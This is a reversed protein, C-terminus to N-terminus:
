GPRPPSRCSPRRRAGAAGAGASQIKGERVRRDLPRGADRRGPFGAARRGGAAGGDRGARRRFRRGHPQGPHDHGDQRPAPRRHRRRGRGGTREDGPRQAPAPPGDGRHRDREAARRDDDPDPLGAPRDPDHDLLRRQRLDRLAQPHHDGAPLHLDPGVPPDHARDRQADEPPDGRRGPQDHPRPLGRRSQRHDAGLAPRLPRGTGGTVASRDGGAERIVPASEGTIASEDVSAAGEIVEGDGPILQGAAVFVVDDRRLDPANVDELSGDKRRRKAVLEKRSARLARAQAKGRGEAVAEAFNAFVVTFLLWLAVQLVYSFPEKTIFLQWFTLLAGILTIFMVPNKIQLRPDLKRFSDVVAKSM